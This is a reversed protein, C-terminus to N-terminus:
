SCAPGNPCSSGIATRLSAPSLRAIAATVHQIAHEVITRAEHPPPELPIDVGDAGLV